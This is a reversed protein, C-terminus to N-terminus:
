LATRTTRGRAAGDLAGRRGVAAGHRGTPWAPVPRLQDDSWPAGRGPNGGGVADARDPDAARAAREALRYTADAWYRSGRFDTRLQSFVEDAEDDRGQDILVWALQYMAADRQDSAPFKELWARLLSEADRDQQLGDYIRAASLMAASVHPSEDYRDMVLRYM